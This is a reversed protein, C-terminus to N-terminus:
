IEVTLETSEAAARGTLEPCLFSSLLLSCPANATKHTRNTTMKKEEKKNNTNKM